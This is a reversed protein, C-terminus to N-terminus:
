LPGGISLFPTWCMKLPAKGVSKPTEKYILISIDANQWWNWALPCPVAGFLSFRQINVCMCCMPLHDPKPFGCRKKMGPLESGLFHMLSIRLVRVAQSMWLSRELGVYRYMNYINM